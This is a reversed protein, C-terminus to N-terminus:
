SLVIHLSLLLKNTCNLILSSPITLSSSPLLACPRSIRTLKVPALLPVLRAAAILVLVMIIIIGQLSSLPLTESYHGIRNQWQITLIGLLQIVLTM